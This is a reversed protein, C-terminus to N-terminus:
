RLRDLLETELSSFELAASKSRIRTRPAIVGHLLLLPYSVCDPGLITGPNLVTNCGIQCRDGLACGFKRLGTRIKKGDKTISIERRDLRLNACKVGAGLNINNGLISDGVYNLHAVQAGNMLISGKVESGHGIVCGDGLICGGRVYAGHRLICGKGIICPGQILVGPELITGEGLAIQDARELFVSTPVQIKKEFSTQSQLYEQLCHLAGWVNKQEKWLDCHAFQELSFFNKVDFAEM